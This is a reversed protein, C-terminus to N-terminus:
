LKLLSTMLRNRSVWTFLEEARDFDQRNCLELAQQLKNDM